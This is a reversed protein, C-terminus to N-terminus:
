NSVQTLFSDSIHSHTLTAGLGGHPLRPVPVLSVTLAHFSIMRPDAAFAAMCLYAELEWRGDSSELSLYLSLGHSTADALCSSLRNYILEGSNQDSKAQITPRALSPTCIYMADQFSPLNGLFLYIRIRSQPHLPCDLHEGSRWCRGPYGGPNWFGRDEDGEEEHEAGHNLGGHTGWM